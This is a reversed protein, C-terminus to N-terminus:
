MVPDHRKPSVSNGGQRESLEPLVQEIARFASQADTAPKLAIVLQLTKSNSTDFNNMTFSENVDPGTRAWRIPELRGPHEIM